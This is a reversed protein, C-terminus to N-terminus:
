MVGEHLMEIHSVQYPFQNRLTSNGELSSTLPNQSEFLQRLVPYEEFFGPTRYIPVVTAWNVAPVDQAHVAAAIVALFVFAVIANM